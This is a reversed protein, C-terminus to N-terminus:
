PRKARLLEDRWAAIGVAVLGAPLGFSNPPPEGRRLACEALADLALRQRDSLRRVTAPKALGGDVPVVVCSTIPDGDQDIGVEVAELRSVVTDGEPGDKMWEVKTVVNGLTDRKVALQADVAGTLSTHGRPRSGDIGCHHVIIVACDFAERVADGARVYASMDEDNSESGELSRNLTDLVIAVPKATGLQIRIAGILEAHEKVFSMRTAVLYFPVPHDASLALRCQRFAEARKGYGDQGEFACYVVAGQVVKRGRYEWGLAVHLM